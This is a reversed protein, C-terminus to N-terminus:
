KKNRKKPPHGYFKRIQNEVDKATNLAKSKLNPLFDADFLNSAPGTLAKQLSEGLDGAPSKIRTGQIVNATNADHFRTKAATEGVKAKEHITQQNVLGMQTGLLDRESKRKRRESGTKIATSAAQGLDPMSAMAGSPSGGGGLGMGAAAIPNIGAKRMDAVTYQFRHKYMKKTFKRSKKAERANFAASAATGGLGFLGGVIEGGVEDLFGM